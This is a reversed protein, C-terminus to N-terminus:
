LHVFLQMILDASLLSPLSLQRLPYESNKIQVVRLNQCAQRSPRLAVKAPNTRRHLDAYVLLCGLIAIMNDVESCYALFDKQATWKALKAM